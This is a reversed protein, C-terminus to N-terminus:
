AHVCLYHPLAGDRSTVEVLNGAANSWLFTSIGGDFTLIDGRVGQQRLLDAARALTTHEVTLILLYRSDLSGLLQYRNAPDKGLVYSPHDAYAYTVLANSFNQQKLPAGTAPDYDGIHLAHGDWQLAKLTITRYHPHKPAAIPGYPSSGGSVLAGGAYVPFSLRTSDDYEEFFSFNVASFAKSGYRSGCSEQMSAATIRRFRPSPAGPYYAGADAPRTADRDGFIQDVKM